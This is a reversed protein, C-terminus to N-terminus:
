SAPWSPFIIGLHSQRPSTQKDRYAFEFLPFWGQSASPQPVPFVFGAGLGVRRSQAHGQGHAPISTFVVCWCSSLAWVLISLTPFFFQGTYTPNASIAWSTCASIANDRPPISVPFPGPNLKSEWGARRGELSQKLVCLYAAVTPHRNLLQEWCRVSCLM